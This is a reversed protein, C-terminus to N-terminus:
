LNTNHRDRSGTLRNKCLWRLGRSAINFLEPHPCAVRGLLQVTVVHHLVALLVPPSQRQAGSKSQREDSPSLQQSFVFLLQNLPRVPVVTVLTEGIGRFLEPLQNPRKMIFIPARATDRFPSTNVEQSAPREVNHAGVTVAAGIDRYPLFVRFEVRDDIGDIPVRPGPRSVTCRSCSVLLESRYLVGTTSEKLRNKLGFRRRTSILRLSLDALFGIQRHARRAKTRLWISGTPEVTILVINAGLTVLPSVASHAM